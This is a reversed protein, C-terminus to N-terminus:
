ANEGDKPAMGALVEAKYGAWDDARPFESHPIEKGLFECLPEWGHKVEYELVTRGKRKALERVNDNHERFRTIGFQDPDGGWVHQYIMDRLPSAHTSHWITLKMSDFWKQEDRSTMIIKADPYADM